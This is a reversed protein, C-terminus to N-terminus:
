CTIVGQNPYKPHGTKLVRPYSRSLHKRREVSRNIWHEINKNFKKYNKFVLLHLQSTALTICLKFNARKYKAELWNKTKRLVASCKIRVWNVLWLLAYIEQLIGNLKTSHWQCMKLTSTLDKFSNEIVWRRSYLKAIERNSFESEKLNTVFFIDRRGKLSKVKVLRVRVSSSQKSESEPPRLDIWTSRKQSKCFLKIQPHLFKNRESVRILFYNENLVHEKITRYGCHYSDYICISNKELDKVMTRALPVECVKESYKFDKIIGNVIDLAQVTYMKPYYTKKNKSFKYGTFENKLIDTSAPLDLYDGDIAYIYYGRFTKRFHNLQNQAQQFIDKFFEFSVKSRYESLSSKAPVTESRLRLDDM